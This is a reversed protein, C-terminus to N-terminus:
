RVLALSNEIIERVSKAVERDISVRPKILELSRKINLLNIKKMDICVARPNIPYIEKDPYLKRARYVLGEETGILCVKCDINGIAKIMQSTSGVYHALKRSDRPVEPHVIVKGDPYNTLAEEVYYRSILCEHIPCHGYEPIPIISKGTLEAAYEALNKDPGFIVTDEGLKSILKSASSSTVVYDSYVKLHTPSNIYLVIPADLYKERINRIYDYTLMEALVCKSRPDPHLVIKDPNLIAATEAMFSVGAFVIIDVDTELAKLTLELSDGIYDAVDQVEPLQYNHALIIANKRKKLKIIETKLKQIYETTM